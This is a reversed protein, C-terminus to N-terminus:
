FSETVVHITYCDNELVEGGPSGGNEDTIDAAGDLALRLDCPVLGEPFQATSLALISGHIVQGPGLISAGPTTVFLGPRRTERSTPRGEEISLDVDLDRKTLM